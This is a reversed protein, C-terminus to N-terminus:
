LGSSAATVLPSYIVDCGGTGWNSFQVRNGKARDYWVGTEVLRGSQAATKGYVSLLDRRLVFCTDEDESALVVRTLNSSKFWFSAKLVRGASDYSGGAEKVGYPMAADATPDAKQVRGKGAAIVQAPTMGWRTYQWHAKVPSALSFVILAGCVISRMIRNGTQGEFPAIYVILRALSRPTVLAIDSM